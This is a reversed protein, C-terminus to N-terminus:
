WANGRGGGRGGRGGGGGRFGGRGGGRSSDRGAGGHPQEGGSNGGGVRRGRNDFALGSHQFANQKPTGDDNTIVEEKRRVKKLRGADMMADWQEDRSRQRMRDFHRPREVTTLRDTYQAQKRARIVDSGLLQTANPKKEHAEASTSEKKDDDEEPEEEFIHDNAKMKPSSKASLSTTADDHEEENRSPAAPRQGKPPVETASSVQLPQEKKQQHKLNMAASWRQQTDNIEEDSDEDKYTRRSSPAVPAIASSSGLRQQPDAPRYSQQVISPPLPAAAAIERAQAEQKLQRALLAAKVEEDSLERYSLQPSGRPSASRQLPSSSKRTTVASGSPRPSAQQAVAQPPGEDRRTYYLMYAQQNLAVNQSVTRVDEDNCSAWVNNRMKVFSYYHGYSLSGGEHVVVANLDYVTQSEPGGYERLGESCHKKIDLVMPYEIKKNVKARMADFRKLQIILVPPPIHIRFCKTAKVLVKRPSQYIRGDLAEVRCFEDLCHELTTGRITLSLVTFPDYTNSHLADGPHSAKSMELDTAAQNQKAKRLMQIEDSRSWSVQSRLYGGVIRLLPTTTSIRLPLLFPGRVRFLISAQVAQILYVFFEHADAQQGLKMSKSIARLNSTIHAPKYVRSGSSLIKRCTDSLFYAFDVPASAAGSTSLPSTFNRLLYQALPPTHAIAQLISNLFCTNGVNALGAGAGANRLEGRWTLSLIDKYFKEDSCILDEDPIYRPDDDDTAAKPRLSRHNTKQMAPSASGEDLSAFSGNQQLQKLQQRAQATHRPNLVLANPPYETVQPKAYQVFEIKRWLAAKAVFGIHGSSSSLEM